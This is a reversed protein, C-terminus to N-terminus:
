NQGNTIFRQRVKSERLSLVQRSPHIIRLMPRGTLHTNSLQRTQPTQMSSWVSNRPPLCYRPISPNFSKTPGGLPDQFSSLRKPSRGIRTLQTRSPYPNSFVHSSPVPILGRADPISRLSDFFGRSSRTIRVPCKQNSHSELCSLLEFSQHKNRHGNMAVRQDFQFTNNQFWISPSQAPEYQPAGQGSGSSGVGSSAQVGFDMAAGSVYRTMESFAL